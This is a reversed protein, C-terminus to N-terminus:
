VSANVTAFQSPSPLQNSGTDIVTVNGGGQFKVVFYRIVNLYRVQWYLFLYGQAQLAPPNNTLDCIVMWPKDIMGQGNIGLGVEPSALQASFGDFLAKAKARTQDNPQISQLQGVFAGAAKSQSARILFNTMRTYEDGNAATNSSCNRGTAFSFYFGGPSSTPPLIADIGGTNILSLETDSYTQGLQSRQTASIGQLPKNLASQQPSLNGYIGIGFAAPSILRSLQNFSDFFTPWDGLILKFWPTDVGSNIRTAIANQITDGKVTAFIGLMTESLAFSAIAAYFSSTSLDCLTFCDCNSQRLAYMGKRPVIDQGVLTADTVNGAGDTGGSLTITTSLLPVLTSTGATAVVTFSPGRTANGANIVAAANTWFTQWTGVGGTLTAGSVTIATSTKALTLANGGSGANTGTGQFQNAVITLVSGSLSYNCKVLGADASTQLLNLLNSLTVALSSGINVQLGTAGSVVFTIATGAITLTDNAVPNGSFTASGSAPTPGMINNFQEPVLGPFAIVAMLSNALSGQQLSFTIGNGLTGTYKGTVTLAGSQISASAALDTGDSVRVCLFGIAGGVQSAASVYSSIDYDRRMPPGIQIAADSPKSVPILSNLPGWSGVGVLGEINTPTGAIFPSPLVIDGYVGPVTLAALNQQGDLFVPM